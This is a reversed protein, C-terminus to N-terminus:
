HFGMQLEADGKSGLFVRSFKEPQKIPALSSVDWRSGCASSTFYILIYGIAVVHLYQSILFGVPIACLYKRVAPVHTGKAM